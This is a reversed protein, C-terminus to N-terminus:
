HLLGQMVLVCRVTFISFFTFPSEFLLLKGDHTLKQTTGRRVNVSTPEGARETLSPGLSANDIFIITGLLVLAAAALLKSVNSMHIGGAFLHM